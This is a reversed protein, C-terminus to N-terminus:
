RERITDVPIKYGDPFDPFGQKNELATLIQNTNQDKILLDFNMLRPMKNKQWGLLIALAEEPTYTRCLQDNRANIVQCVGVGIVPHDIELEYIHLTGTNDYFGIKILGSEEVKVLVSELQRGELGTPLNDKSYPFGPPPEPALLFLLEDSEWGNESFKLLKQGDDDLKIILKGDQIDLKDLIVKYPENKSTVFTFEGKDADIIGAYLFEENFKSSVIVINLSDESYKYFLNNKYDSIQRLEMDILTGDALNAPLIETPPILSLHKSGSVPNENSGFYLGYGDLNIKEENLMTYVYTGDEDQRLFEVENEDLDRYYYKIYKYESNSNIEAKAFFEEKFITRVTENGTGTVIDLIYVKGTEENQAINVIEDVKPGGDSVSLSWIRPTFRVFESMEKALAYWTEYEEQTVQNGPTQEEMMTTVDNVEFQYVPEPIATHTPILTPFIQTPSSSVGQCAALALSSLFGFVRFALPITKM